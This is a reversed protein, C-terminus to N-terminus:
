PCISLRGQLDAGNTQLPGDGAIAHSVDVKAGVAVMTVFVFQRDGVLDVNRPDVSAPQIEEPPGDWRLARRPLVILDVPTIGDGRDPLGHMYDDGRRSLSSMERRQSFGCLGAGIGM